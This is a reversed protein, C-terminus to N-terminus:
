ARFRAASFASPDLFPKEGTAMEAILRGTAPGLTMGHHAHGFAFWLAKHRPAPGIIPMMDPTIPRAGMWPEPDLREGIPFLTRAIAEDRDVQVPTKPADRNAFEAGTTLRIGQNMPALLYGPESDLIWHTLPRVAPQRYHMHYGRKVSLPLRYGLRRTLDGAWPGLAVVVQGAEVAGEASEVRWGGSPTAALTTADGMRFAGGLREFLGFYAMVLAHPDRITWPDTWHVAGALDTMLGPEVAKMQRGDLKDRGVGFERALLDAEAFGEDRKQATRFMLYWGGKGILAEAGSATILAEHERVSAEILPAYARAIAAYHRPWSHWWYRALFPVLAPIATPHYFMDTSNNLGYKLLKGIGLPFAHPHVGERQILGANGYSTEEGPHRRDLLVVSRGRQALHVATSVGVIGAGLVLIDANM